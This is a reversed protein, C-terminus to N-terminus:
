KNPSSKCRFNFHTRTPNYDVFANRHATKDSHFLYSTNCFQLKIIKMSLALTDVSISVQYGPYFQNSCCPPQSPYHYYPNDCNGSLSLTSPHHFLEQCSGMRYPDCPRRYYDMSRLDERSTMHHKYYHHDWPAFPPPPPVEWTVPSMRRNSCSSSSNDKALKDSILIKDNERLSHTSRSKSDRERRNSQSRSRQRRDLSASPNAAPRPPKMSTPSKPEDIKREPTKSSDKAQHKGMYSDHPRKQSRQLCTWTIEEDESTSEDALNFKPKHNKQAWLLSFLDAFAINVYRYRFNVLLLCYIFKCVALGQRFSFRKVQRHRIFHSCRSIKQLM